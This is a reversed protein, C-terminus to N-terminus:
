LTETYDILDQIDTSVIHTSAEQFLVLCGWPYEPKDVLERRQADFWFWPPDSLEALVYEASGNRSTGEVAERLTPLLFRRRHRRFAPQVQRAWVPPTGPDADDDYSDFLPWVGPRVLLGIYGGYETSQRPPNTLAIHDEYTMATSFTGPYTNPTVDDWDLVGLGLGVHSSPWAAEGSPTGATWRTLAVFLPAVGDYTAALQSAAM